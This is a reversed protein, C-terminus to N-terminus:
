SLAKLADITPINKKSIFEFEEFEAANSLTYPTVNESTQKRMPQTSIGMVRAVGNEGMKIDTQVGFGVPFGGSIKMFTFACRYIADNEGDKTYMAVSNTELPFVCEGIKDMTAQILRDMDNHSLKAGKETYGALDFPQDIVVPSPNSHGSFGFMEVFKEKGDSFVCFYMLAFILLLAFM